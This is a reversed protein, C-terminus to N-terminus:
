QVLRHLVSSDPEQGLGAPLVLIECFLTYSIKHVIRPYGPSSADNPDLFYVYGNEDNELEAGIITIIHTEEGKEADSKTVESIFYGLGHERFTHSANSTSLTVLALDIEALCTGQRLEQILGELKKEPRWPSQVYGFSKWIHHIIVHDYHTSLQELALDDPSLNLKKLYSHVATKIDFNLSVSVENIANILAQGQHDLLFYTLDPQGSQLFNKLLNIQIKLNESPIPSSALKDLISQSLIQDASQTENGEIKQRQLIDNFQDVFNDEIEKIETLITCRKRFNSIIIEKNRKQAEISDASQGMFFRGYHTQKAAYYWCLGGKNGHHVKPRELDTLQFFQGNDIYTLALSNPLGAAKKTNLNYKGSPIDHLVRNKEDIYFSFPM